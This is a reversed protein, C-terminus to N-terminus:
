AGIVPSGPFPIARGLPLRLPGYYHQDAPCCLGGPAFPGCKMSARLAPLLRQHTGFRSSRDAVSQAHVPNTGKLAHEVATGLLIPVTTEMSEKVLDGAAVDHPSGPALDTSVASRGADITHGDLLDLAGPDAIEELGKGPLQLDPGIPGLRKPTHMDGLRPPRSMGTREPNGRDGVPHHHRCRLDDKLRNELGVEERAAVPKARLTRRMMGQLGDPRRDVTASQPHEVGVDLCTKILDRVLSEESLDLSPYDILPDDLQQTTPKAGPHKLAPDDRGDFGPGRL